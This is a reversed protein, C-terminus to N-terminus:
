RFLPAIADSLEKPTTVGAFAGILDGERNFIFRSPLERIKGFPTNGARLREDAILVPAASKLQQAFPALVLDGELDMGVLVAQFGKPGYQEALSDLTRLDALCPFCWTAIFTVMVVHGDLREPAFPQGLATQRPLWSRFTRFNPTPETHACATAVVGTLVARRSLTM